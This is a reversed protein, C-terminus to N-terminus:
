CRCPTAIGIGGVLMGLIGAGKLSLEFMQQVQEDTEALIVRLLGGVRHRWWISLGATPSTRRRIRPHTQPPWLRATDMAYYVKSGQHQRETVIGRIRGEVV